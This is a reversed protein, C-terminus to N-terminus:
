RARSVRPAASPSCRACRSPRSRSSRSTSRRRARGRDVPVGAPGRGPGRASEGRVRRGTFGGNVINRLVEHGIGGPTRGAGIVAVAGPSFLRHLSRDEAARERDAMRELTSPRYATDLVLEVVGSDLRRVQEFGPTPSSACCRRTRRWTDARLRQIGNERATAALQELLLTGIGRGQVADDLLFAMEAEGARMLEYSAVGVLRGGDEAVLAVHGDDDTALHHAHEDAGRRNIRFFRLYVSRDSVRENMANLAAEDDPRIPRIRVVSGDSALADWGAVPLAPHSAVGGARPGAGRSPHRAGAPGTLSTTM